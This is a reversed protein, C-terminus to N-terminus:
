SNSFTISDIEITRGSSEVPDVRLARITGRWSSNAGLDVVIDRFDDVGRLEFM